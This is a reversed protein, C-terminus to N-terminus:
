EESERDSGHLLNQEEDGGVIPPTSHVLRWTEDRLCHPSQSVTGNWHESRWYTGFLSKIGYGGGDQRVLQFVQLFSPCNPTAPGALTMPSYNFGAGEFNEQGTPRDVLFDVILPVHVPLLPTHNAVAESITRQVIDGYMNITLYLPSSQGNENNNNNGVNTQDNNSSNDDNILRFAVLLGIGNYTEDHYRLPARELLFKSGRPANTTTQNKSKDFVIACGRFDRIELPQGIMWESGTMNDSTGYFSLLHNMPKVIEDRQLTYDYM